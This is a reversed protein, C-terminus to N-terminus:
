RRASDRHYRLVVAAGLLVSWVALVCGALLANAEPLIGARGVEGLWYSPVFPMINNVWWAPFTDVPIFLGGAVALLLIGLMTTTQVRDKNVFQGILLGLFVFPIGGLWVFGIVHLWALPDLKVGESVVAVLPIILVTPLAAIVGAATKGLLYGLGTLPTLRLQRQWGTTRENAVRSGTLLGATLVGWASMSVMTIVPFDVARSSIAEDAHLMMQLLYCVMPFGVTFLLIDPSRVTRRLELKLYGLNM